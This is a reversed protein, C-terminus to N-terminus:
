KTVEFKYVKNESVNMDANNNTDNVRSRLVLIDFGKFNTINLDDLNLTKNFILSDNLENYVNYTIKNNDSVLEIKVDSGDNVLSTLDYDYNKYGVNKVVEKKSKPDYISWWFIIGKQKISLGSIFTLNSTNNIDDVQSSVNIDNKSIALVQFRSYKGDKILDVKLDFGNIKNNFKSAIAARSDDNEKKFAKLLVYNDNVEVVNGKYRNDGDYFALIKYWDYGWIKGLNEVKPYNQNNNLTINLQINKLDKLTINDEYFYQDENEEWDYDDNSDKFIVIQVPDNKLAKEMEDKKVGEIYCDDGFSGDSEIRCFLSNWDEQYRKPTIRIKADSPINIESGNSDKFTVKGYVLDDVFYRVDSDTNLHQYAEEYTKYLNNQIDKLSWSINIEEDGNDGYPNVGSVNLKGDKIDYDFTVEYHKGNEVWSDILKGDERFFLTEVHPHESDSVPIYYTKGVILSKIVNNINKFLITKAEDKTVKPLKVDLQKEIVPKVVEITKTVNNEDSLNIEKVKDKLITEPPLKIVGDNPNGDTDLNQFILALNTAITTNDDAIDIPTLIEGATVPKNLTVSGLKFVIKDGNKYKYHGENDTVGSIGSSTTYALNAVPADIFTGTKVSTSTSSNSSGGGCGVIFALSGGLILATVKSLKM